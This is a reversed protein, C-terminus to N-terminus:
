RAWPDEARWITPLSLAVGDAEARERLFAITRDLDDFAYPTARLPQDAPRFFDDWHTLVVTRPSCARVVHDWYGQLYSDPHIGLQGVGLYVVDASTGELAGPVFGASGQVLATAGSEHRLHASWAEGCKWASSRAPPVVPASIVGPFRDPPCHTSETLTLTWSGLGLPEGPAPTQLREEPVGAGRGLNATSTGGVLVAGTRRSVEASDLAHDYHSHVPLVAEVDIGTAGIRRLGEEILVPDPAIRRAAVRVLPLRTFFGDFLVGSRGDSFLLTSVGGFTVSLRDTASGDSARPLDFMAAYRDLDPRGRRMRM